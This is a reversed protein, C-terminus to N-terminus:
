SHLTSLPDPKHSDRGNTLDRAQPRSSLDELAGSHELARALESVRLPLLRTVLFARSVRPRRTSTPRFSIPPIEVRFAVKNFIMRLRIVFASSTKAAVDNPM